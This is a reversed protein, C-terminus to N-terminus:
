VASNAATNAVSSNGGGFLGNVKLSQVEIIM